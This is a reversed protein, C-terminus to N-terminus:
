DLWVTTIIQSRDLNVTNATINLSVTTNADDVSIDSAGAGELYEAWGKYYSSNIVVSVNGNVPNVPILSSYYSKTHIRIIGEGGIFADGMLEFIPLTTVNGISLPPESAMVVEGEPYKIWIGGNEYAISKGEFIYEISGLNYAVGGVTMLSDRSVVLSGGKIKLETNRIPASDFGVKDINASLFIFGKEMEQFHTSKESKDVIPSGAFYVISSSLLIIGLTLIFGLAESVASESKIFEKM